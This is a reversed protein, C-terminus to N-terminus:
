RLTNFFTPAFLPVLSGELHYTVSFTTYAGFDVYELASNAPKADPLLPAAPLEIRTGIGLKQNRDSLGNLDLIGEISVGLRNAIEVPSEAQDLVITGLTRPSPLNFSTGASLPQQSDTLGNLSLLTSVNLGYLDALEAPTTNDKLSIEKLPKLGPVYFTSGVDLAQHPNNIGNLDLLWDVSLGYLKALETPSTPTEVKIAEVTSFDAPVTLTLGEIDQNPDIIGNSQMLQQISVGFQRAIKELTPATGDVGRTPRLSGVTKTNAAFASLFSSKGEMPDPTKNFGVVTFRTDVSDGGSSQLSNFNLSSSDDSVPEDKKFVPNVLVEEVKGSNVDQKWVLFKGGSQGETVSNSNSDDKMYFVTSGQLIQKGTSQDRQDLLASLQDYAETFQVSKIPNLPDKPNEKTITELWNPQSQLLTVLQANEPRDISGTSERREVLERSNIPTRRQLNIVKAWDSPNGAMTLSIVNSDLSSSTIPNLQQVVDSSASGVNIGGGAVAASGALQLGASVGSSMRANDNKRNTFQMGGESIQQAYCCIPALVAIAALLNRLM